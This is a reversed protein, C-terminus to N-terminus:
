RDRAAGARLILSVSGNRELIAAEVNSLDSAGLKQRATEIVDARTILAASLQKDDFRGDRYVEREVGGMLSELWRSRVCIWALARHAFVIVFSAAFTSLVPSAGVIARSLMAGLLIVVVYDFPSRQGFSRRGSIRILLLAVLFVVVARAAMQLSNLDSGEGFLAVFLNM